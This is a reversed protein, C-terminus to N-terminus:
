GNLVKVADQLNSPALHAYVLTQSLSKHGLWEKVVLLSVGRQM